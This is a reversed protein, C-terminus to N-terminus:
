GNIRWSYGCVLCQIFLTSAEDGSRIQLEYFSCENKKCMRCKFRDTKPVVKPNLEKEESLALAQRSEKWVEPFMREPELSALAAPRFERSRLREVLRANGVYSDPHLNLHVHRAMESYLRRFIPDAWNRTVNRSKAFGIAWNFIGVEIERAWAADLELALVDAHLLARVADRIQEPNAGAEAPRCPEETASSM